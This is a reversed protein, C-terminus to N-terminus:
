RKGCGFRGSDQIGFEEASQKGGLVPVNVLTDLADDVAAALRWRQYRRELQQAFV